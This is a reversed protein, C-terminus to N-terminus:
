ADDHPPQLTDSTHISLLLKLVWQWQRSKRRVPLQALPITLWVPEERHPTLLYPPDRTKEQQNWAALAGQGQMAPLPATVLMWNADCGQLFPLSDPRGEINVAVVAQAGETGAREELLRELM